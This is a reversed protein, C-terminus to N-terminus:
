DKSRCHVGANGCDVQTQLHRLDNIYLVRLITAAADVQPDGVSFGLPFADPSFGGLSGQSGSPASATYSRAAEIAAPSLIRQAAGVVAKLLQAIDTCQSTDVNLLKAANQIQAQLEPGEINNFIAAKNISAPTQGAAGGAGGGAEGQQQQQNQDKLTEAHKKHQEANDRYDLMLAQSCLYDLVEARTEQSYRVPCGLDEVYTSFFTNWQPGSTRLPTREETKLFRIKMDELWVVLGKYTGFDEIRFQDAKPYGLSKLILSRTRTGM